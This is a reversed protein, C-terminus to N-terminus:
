RTLAAALFPVGFVVIAPLLWQTREVFELTAIVHKM